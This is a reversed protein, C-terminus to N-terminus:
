LVHTTNGPYWTMCHWNLCLAQKLMKRASLNNSYLLRSSSLVRLWQACTWTKVVFGNCKLIQVILYQRRFCSFCKDDFKPQPHEFFQASFFHLYEPSKLLQMKEGEPCKKLTSPALIQQCLLENKNIRDKSDALEGSSNHENRMLWIIYLM